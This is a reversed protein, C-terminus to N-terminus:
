PSWDSWFLVVPLLLTANPTLAPPLRVVPLLLISIKSGPTALSDLVMRM